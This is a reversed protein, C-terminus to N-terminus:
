IRGANASFAVDSPDGANQIQQAILGMRVAIFAHQHRAVLLPRIRDFISSASSAIRSFFGSQARALRILGQNAMGLVFHRM